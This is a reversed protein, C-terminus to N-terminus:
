GQKELEEAVWSQQDCHGVPTPPIGFSAVQCLVQFSCAALHGIGRGQNQRLKDTPLDWFTSMHWSACVKMQTGSVQAVAAEGEGWKNSDGELYFGRKGFVKKGSQSVLKIYMGNKAQWKNDSNVWARNSERSGM